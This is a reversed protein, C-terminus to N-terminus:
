YNIVLEKIKSISKDGFKGDIELGNDKQFDIIAVITRSTFNGDIVDVKYGLSSLFLEIREKQIIDYKDHYEIEKQFRFFDDFFSNGGKDKLGIEESNKLENKFLPEIIPHEHSFFCNSRNIEEDLQNNSYNNLQGYHSQIKEWLQTSKRLENEDFYINYNTYKINNDPKITGAKNTYPNINGLTSFNDRNTNNPATRFHTPVIIGDQKFYSEVKVHHPNTQGLIINSCCCFLLLIIISVKM